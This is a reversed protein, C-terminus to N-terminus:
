YREENIIALIKEHSMDTSLSKVKSIPTYVDSVKKINFELASQLLESQDEDITGEDEITKIIDVLEDETVTPKQKSALISSIFVGIKEFLYSLPTLVRM